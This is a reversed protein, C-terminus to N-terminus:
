GRMMGQILRSKLFGMFRYLKWKQRNIYCLLDHVEGKVGVLEKPLSWRNREITRKVVDSVRRVNVPGLSCLCKFVRSLLFVFFLFLFRLFQFVLSILEM